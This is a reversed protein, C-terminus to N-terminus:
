NTCGEPILCLLEDEQEDDLVFESIVFVIAALGAIGLLTAGPALGLREGRRHAPSQGAVLLRPGDSRLGLEIAPSIRRDIRGSMEVREEIQSLGIGLHPQQAEGGPDGGLPMRLTVGAFSGSREGALQRGELDAAAAAPASMLAAALILAISRATTM